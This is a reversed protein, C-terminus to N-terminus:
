PRHKLSFLLHKNLVNQRSATGLNRAKGKKIVYWIYLNKDSIAADDCISDVFIFYLMKIILFFVIEREYFM